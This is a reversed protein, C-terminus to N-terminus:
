IFCSFVNFEEFKKLVSKEQKKSSAQCISKNRNKDHFVLLSFDYEGGLTHMMCQGVGEKVLSGSESLKYEIALLYPSHIVFDPYNRSDFIQPAPGGRRRQGEWYFENAAKLEPNAYNKFYKVLYNQIVNSVQGQGEKEDANRVDFRKLLIDNKIARKLGSVFKIFPGTKRRFRM